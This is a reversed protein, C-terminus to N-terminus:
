KHEKFSELIKNLDKSYTDKDKKLCEVYSLYYGYEGEILSVISYFDDKYVEDYYEVNFLYAQYGNIKKEEFKSLNKYIDEKYMEYYEEMYAKLDEENFSFSLGTNPSTKKLSIVKSLSEIDAELTHDHGNQLELVRNKNIDFGLVNYKKAFEIALPLGVYGLGIVAIDTQKM